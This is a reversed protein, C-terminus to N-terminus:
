VHIPHGDVKIEQANGDAFNQPWDAVLNFQQPRDIRLGTVLTSDAPVSMVVKAMLRGNNHSYSGDFRTETMDVGTVIGKGIYLCGAGAGTGGIYRMIYLASM